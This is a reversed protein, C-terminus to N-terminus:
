FLFMIFLHPFFSTRGTCEWNKSRFSNCVGFTLVHRATWLESHRAPSIAITHQSSSLRSDASSFDEPIKQISRWQVNQREIYQAPQACMSRSGVVKPERGVTQAQLIPCERRWAPTRDCSHTCCNLLYFSIQFKEDFYLSALLSKFSSFTEFKLAVKASPAAALSSFSSFFETQSQELFPWLIHSTLKRYGPM